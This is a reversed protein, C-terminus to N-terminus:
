GAVCLIPVIGIMLPTTLREAFALAPFAYARSFLVFSLIWVWLVTLAAYLILAVIFYGNILFGAIGRLASWRRREGIGRIQVVVAAPWSRQIPRSAAVQSLSIRGSM